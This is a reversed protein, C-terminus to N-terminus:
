RFESQGQDHSRCGSADQEDSRPSYRPIPCGGHSRSVGSIFFDQVDALVLSGYDHYSGSYSLTWYGLPFSFSIAGSQSRQEDAYNIASRNYSLRWSDNFGLVNDAGFSVLNQQLGTSRSGSNDRGLEFRFRDGVQNTVAIRSAGPENGPVIEMAANNSALRNM